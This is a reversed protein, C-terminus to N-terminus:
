LAFNSRSQRRCRRCASPMMLPSPHIAGLVIMSALPMPFTKPANRNTLIYAVGPMKEAASVDIGRLRSRPHPSVLFKCHLMNPFQMRTAYMATGLFRPIAVEPLPANPKGVVNLNVPPYGQWKKTVIRDDGEVLTDQPGHGGGTSYDRVMPQNITIVSHTSPVIKLKGNDQSM